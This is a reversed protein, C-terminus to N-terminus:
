DQPAILDIDTQFDKFVDPSVNFTEALINAPMAGLGESIGIDTPNENNFTVLIHM